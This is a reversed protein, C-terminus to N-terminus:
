NNKRQGSLYDTWSKPPTEGKQEILSVATQMRPLAKQHEGKWAYLTALNANSREDDPKMALLEELSAIASDQDGKKLSLRVMTKLATQREADPMQGTEFMMKLAAQKGPDDDTREALQYSYSATHYRDVRSLQPNRLLKDLLLKAAAFESENIAKEALWLECATRETLREDGSKCEKILKNRFRLPSGGSGDLSTNSGGGSILGALGTNTAVTRFQRDMKRKIRSGLVEREVMPYPEEALHAKKNREGTVIIKQREAESLDAAPTEQAALLMILGFTLFPM